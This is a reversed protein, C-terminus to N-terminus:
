DEQEGSNKAPSKTFKVIGLRGLDIYCNFIEERANELRILIENLEKEKIEIEALM